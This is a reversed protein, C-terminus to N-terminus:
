KSLDIDSSIKTFIEKAILKNIAPSYHFEDIYKIKVDIDRLIQSIDVVLNSKKYKEYANLFDKGFYSQGFQDTVLKSTFEKQVYSSPELFTYCNLLFKKCVAERIEINKKFINNSEEIINNIILEDRIKSNRNNEFLRHIKNYIVTLPLSQFFYEATVKIKNSLTNQTGDFLRKIQKSFGSPLMEGGGDLFIITDGNSFKNNVLHFLFLSNERTSNYQGSGFNYACYNNNILESFYFPITQNDKVQYGFTTSSGYFYFEKNCIRPNDIKRGNEFNFNVFEQNEKKSEIYGIYDRFEFFNYAWMENYFKGSKAHDIGLNDLIEKSYRNKRYIKESLTRDLPYWILAILINILFFVGICYSIFKFINKIEKM